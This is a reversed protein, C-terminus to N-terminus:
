PAGYPDDTANEARITRLIESTLRTLYDQKGADVTPTAKNETRVRMELWFRTGEDQIRNLALLVFRYESTSPDGIRIEIGDPTRGVLYDGYFYSEHASWHVGALSQLATHMEEIKLPSDFSKSAM